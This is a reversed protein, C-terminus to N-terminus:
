CDPGEPLVDLSGEPPFDELAGLVARMAPTTAAAATTPRATM